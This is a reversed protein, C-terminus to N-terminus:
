HRLNKYMAVMPNTRELCIHEMTKSAVDVTVELEIKNVAFVVALVEICQELERSASVVEAVVFAVIDVM